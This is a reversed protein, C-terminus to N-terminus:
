CGVDDDLGEVVVFLGSLEFSDGTGVDWLAGGAIVDQAPPCELGDRNEDWGDGNGFAYEDGSTIELNCFNWIIFRLVAGCFFFFLDDALGGFAAEPCSFDNQQRVKLLRLEYAFIRDDLHDKILVAQCDFCFPACKFTAREAISDTDQVRM